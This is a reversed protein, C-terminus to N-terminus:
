FHTAPQIVVPVSVHRLFQAATSGLFVRELHGQTSSGLSIIDGKKWKLSDIAGQWGAGSALEIHVTLDPYDDMVRDRAQDCMSLAQEHWEDALPSSSTLAHSLNADILGTPSFAVLRLPVQMQYAAEAGYALSENNDTDHADLFAVNVRTIGRKSLKPARPALALPIPSSHLLADTTTGALFRGKPTAARSGVILLDANFDTAAQTLLAHESSGDLILAVEDDWHSKDVGAETLVQRVSEAFHRNQEDMWKSYKRRRKGRPSQPWLHVITHVVRIRVPATRALWAALEIAENGAAGPQWTVLLRPPRQEGHIFPTSSPSKKHSM